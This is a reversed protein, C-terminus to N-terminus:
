LLGKETMFARLKEMQEDTAVSYPLRRWRECLGVLEMMGHIMADFHLPISATLNMFPVEYAELVRACATMDGATFAKWYEREPKPAFREFISLYGDVKYPAVDLHNEMRGGSMFAYNGDLLAALRRGYPSPTDDKVGMFNEVKRDLLLQFTSLPVGRNSMLASLAMVPMVRAAAEYFDALLVPDGSQAWDPPVPIFLDAGIEKCYQAFRLTEGQWAQKGCAIVMARGATEKVTFSTLEAVENDTLISFLSDGFTLLLSPAGNGVMFDIMRSLSKWDIDGNKLFPTSVSPIPGTIAAKVASVDRYM